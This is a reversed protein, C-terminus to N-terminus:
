CTASNIGERYAREVIRGDAAGEVRVQIWQNREARVDLRLKLYNDTVAAHGDDVVLAKKM